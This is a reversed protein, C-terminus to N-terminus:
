NGGSSLGTLISSVGSFARIMASFRSLPTDIQQYEIAKGSLREVRCRFRRNLLPLSEGSSSLLLLCTFRQVTRVRRVSM